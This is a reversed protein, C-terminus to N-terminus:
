FPIDDGNGKQTTGAAVPEKDNSKSRSKNNGSVFDLNQVNISYYTKGEWVNSSLAGNVYIPNGKNLYKEALEGVKGWFKLDIFITDERDRFAGRSVVLNDTKREPDQTLNCIGNTYLSM